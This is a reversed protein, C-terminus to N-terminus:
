SPLKNFPATHVGERFYYGFVKPIQRGNCTCTLPACKIIVNRSFGSASLAAVAMRPLAKTSALFPSCIEPNGECSQLEFRSRDTLSSTMLYRNCQNFTCAGSRGACTPSALTSSVTIFRQGPPLFTSPGKMSDQFVRGEMAFPLFLFCPSERPGFSLTCRGSHSAKPTQKRADILYSVLPMM